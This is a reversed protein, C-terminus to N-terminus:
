TITVRASGIQPSVHSGWEEIVVIKDRDISTLIENVADTLAVLTEHHKKIESNFRKEGEDSLFSLGGGNNSNLLMASNAQHSPSNGMSILFSAYSSSVLTELMDLDNPTFGSGYKDISNELKESFEKFNGALYQAWTINGTVPAKASFDLYSITNYFEENIFNNPNTLKHTSKGDKISSAKFMNFITGFHRRIAISLSRLAIQRKHEFQKKDRHNIYSELLLFTLFVGVIETLLGGFIDEDWGGTFFNGFYLIVIASFIISLIILPTKFEEISERIHEPIKM